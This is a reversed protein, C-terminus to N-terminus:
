LEPLNQHTVLQVDMTILKQGHKACEVIYYAVKEGGNCHIFEEVAARILKAKCGCGNAPCKFASQKTFEM